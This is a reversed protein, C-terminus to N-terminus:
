GTAEPQEIAPWLIETRTAQVVIMASAVANDNGNDEGMAGARVTYVGDEELCAESDPGLIPSEELSLGIGNGIGHRVLPHPRYPSLQSAAALSLEGATAGKRAAGVAASLAARAHALAGGGAGLTALGEAWYGAFRVALCVLLPNVRNDAPDVFPQPPGGNRASALIRVDQAGSEFAAREAALAATRAGAGESISEALVGMSRSLIQSARRVLERERRSKRRRLADLPEDLEVPNGFSRSAALVAHYTRNFMAGAGWLGVPGNEPAALDALAKGIGTKLDRLPRVDEVWTLRKAAALMGSGGSVIMRLPGQSPVLAFAPGLKPTFGTVYGLAGHEDSHGHILLCSVGRGAAVRRIAALRTEFEERPLLALDWDFPGTLLAIHKMRM